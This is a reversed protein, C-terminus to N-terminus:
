NAVQKNNILQQKLTADSCDTMAKYSKDNKIIIAAEACGCWSCENNLFLKEAWFKDPYSCQNFSFSHNGNKWYVTEIHANDSLQKAITAIPTKTFDEPTPIKNTPYRGELLTYGDMQKAFRKGYQKIGYSYNARIRKTSDIIRIEILMNKFYTLALTATKSHQIQNITFNNTIFVSVDPCFTKGSDSNIHNGDKSNHKSLYTPLTEKPEYITSTHISDSLQYKALARFKFGYSNVRNISDGLKIADIGTISTKTQQAYCTITALVFCFMTFSKLM